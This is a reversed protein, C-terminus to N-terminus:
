GGGAEGLARIAAAVEMAGDQRGHRWDDHRGSPADPWESAIQDAVRACAERVAPVIVALVARAHPIFQPWERKAWSAEHPAYALQNLARAAAEVLAEGILPADTM